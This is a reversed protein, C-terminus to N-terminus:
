PAAGASWPFRAEPVAGVDVWPNKYPDIAIAGPWREAMVAMAAIRMETMAPPGLTASEVHIVGDLPLSIVRWGARRVRLCFDVDGFAVPLSVEDFGGVHEFVERRMAQLAGTACQYNRVTRLQHLYGDATSPAGRLVHQARVCHEGTPGPQLIMGAHQV